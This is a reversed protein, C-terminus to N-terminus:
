LGCGFCSQNMVSTEEVSKNCPTEFSANLPESIKAVCSIQSFQLDFKGSKHYVAKVPNRIHVSIVCSLAFTKEYHMNPPMIM